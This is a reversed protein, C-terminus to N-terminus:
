GSIRSRSIVGARVLSEAFKRLLSLFEEREGASFDAMGKEVVSENELRRRELFVKAAESVAIEVSRRDHSSRKRCLVKKGVLIDVAESAAAPSINLAEALTKLSVGCGSNEELVRVKRFIGAQSVTLSFAKDAVEPSLRGNSYERIGEVAECILKLVEGAEGTKM